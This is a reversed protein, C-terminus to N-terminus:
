GIREMESIAQSQEALEISLRSLLELMRSNLNPEVAMRRAVQIMAEHARKIRVLEARDAYGGPKRQTTM